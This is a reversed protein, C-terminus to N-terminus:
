SRESQYGREAPKADKEYEGNDRREPEPRGRGRGGGGGGVDGAGTKCGARRGGREEAAQTEGGWVVLVDLDEVLGVGLQQDEVWGADIGDGGRGAPGEHERVCPEAFGCIPGASAAGDEEELILLGGHEEGRPFGDRPGEHEGDGGRDVVM